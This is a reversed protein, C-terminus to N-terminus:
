RVEVEEKSFVKIIRDAMKAGVGPVAMLEERTATLLFPMGVVDLIAKATKPGVNPLSTLLHVQYDRNTVRAWGSGSPGPRTDLSHHDVKNTWVSLDMLYQISDTVNDTYVVHIGRLQVSHLYNRHQSKTWGNRKDNRGRILRGETTWHPTGEIMLVAMSLEKMQAYEVNLRGDHMSALFDSPFQKRQVGVMGLASDWLFDVGYSETILSSAGLHKFAKPEAPSVFM